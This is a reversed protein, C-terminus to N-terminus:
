CVIQEVVYDYFEAANFLGPIVRTSVYGEVTIAAVMSYREGRVFNDVFNAREGSFARGYCRATDHDNKSVEDIFIFEKGQGNSHEHIVAHFEARVEEDCERAIKHLLKHTLGVGVLNKQLASRSIPLDHHVALWWVLEDLYADAENNYVLLRQM